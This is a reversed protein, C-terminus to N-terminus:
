NLMPKLIDKYLIDLNVPKTLYSYAGLRVAQRATGLEENGSLIVVLINPYLENIKKLTEIGNLRPMIMDLLILDPRDEKILDLGKMGDGAQRVSFGKDKLYEGVLKRANADDDIILIKNKM